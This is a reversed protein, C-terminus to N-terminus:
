GARTARTRVAVTGRPFASPASPVGDWAMRSWSEIRHAANITETGVQVVSAAAERQNKEGLLKTHERLDLMQVASAALLLVFAVAVLIGLALSTGDESM